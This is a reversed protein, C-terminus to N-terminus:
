LKSDKRAQATAFYVVQNNQGSLLDNMHMFTEESSAVDVSIFLFMHIEDSGKVAHVYRELTSASVSPLADPTEVYEEGTLETITYGANKLNEKAEDFSTDKFLGCGAFSLVSFTLVAVLLLAVTTKKM